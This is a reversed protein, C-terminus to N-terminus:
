VADTTDSASATAPAIAIAAPDAASTTVITRIAASFYTALAVATSTTVPATQALAEDLAQIPPRLADAGHRLAARHGTARLLSADGGQQGPDLEALRDVQGTVDGLFSVDITLDVSYTAAASAALETVV